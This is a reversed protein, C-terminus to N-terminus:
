ILQARLTHLYIPQVVQRSPEQFLGFCSKWVRSHGSNVPTPRGDEGLVRIEINPIADGVAVGM